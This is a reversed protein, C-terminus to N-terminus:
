IYLYYLILYTHYSRETSTVRTKDMFSYRLKGDNTGKGVNVTGANVPSYYSLNRFYSLPFSIPLPALLGFLDTYSNDYAAPAVVENPLVQIIHAEFYREAVPMAFDQVRRTTNRGPSKVFSEDLDPLTDEDDSSDGSLDDVLSITNGDTDDVVADPYALSLLPADLNTIEELWLHNDDDDMDATVRMTIPRYSLIIPNIFFTHFMIHGGSKERVRPTPFLM